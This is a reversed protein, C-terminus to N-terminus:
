RRHQQKRKRSQQDKVGRLRARASVLRRHTPRQALGVMTSRWVVRLALSNTRAPAENM